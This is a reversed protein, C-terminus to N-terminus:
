KWPPREPYAKHLREGTDLACEFCLKAKKVGEPTTISYPGGLGSRKCVVCKIIRGIRSEYYAKRIQERTVWYCLPKIDLLENIADYHMEQTAQEFPVPLLKTWEDTFRQNNLVPRAIYLMFIPWGKPFKDRFHEGHANCTVRHVQLDIFHEPLEGMM